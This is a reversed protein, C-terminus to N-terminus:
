LCSILFLNRLVYVRVFWVHTSNMVRKLLDYKSGTNEEEERSNFTIDKSFRHDASRTYLDMSKWTQSKERFKLKVVDRALRNATAEMNNLPLSLRYNFKKNSYPM